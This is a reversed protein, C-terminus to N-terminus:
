KRVPETVENYIGRLKELNERNNTAIVGPYDTGNRSYKGDLMEVEGGSEEIILNIAAVDYFNIAGQVHGLANGEAVELGEISAAGLESVDEVQDLDAAERKVPKEVKEALEDDRDSTKVYLHGSQDVSLEDKSGRLFSGQGELATALQPEDGLEPACVASAVPEGDVVYAISFSYCEGGESFNGSGDVPDVLFYEDSHEGGHEEGVVSYGLNGLYESVAFELDEEIDTVVEGAEKYEQNLAGEQANKLVRGAESAIHDALLFENIYEGSRDIDSGYTEDHFEDFATQPDELDVLDTQQNQSASM